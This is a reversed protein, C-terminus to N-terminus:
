ALGIKECFDVIIKGFDYPKYNHEVITEIFKEKGLLTKWKTLETKTHNEKLKKILNNIISLSTPFNKYAIQFDELFM